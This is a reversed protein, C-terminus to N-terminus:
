ETYTETPPQVSATAPFKPLHAAVANIALGGSIADLEDLNLDRPSKMTRDGRAVNM